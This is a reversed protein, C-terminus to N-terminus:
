FLTWPIPNLSLSVLEYDLLGQSITIRAVIIYLLSLLPWSMLTLGLFVLEYDLSRLSITIRTTIYWLSALGHCLPSTWLSPTTIWHDLCYRLGRSLVIYCLLSPKIYPNSGFLSAQLGAIRAIDYDKCCNLIVLLGLNIQLDLIPIPILQLLDLVLKYTKKM